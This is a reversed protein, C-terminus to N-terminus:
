LFRFIKLVFPAKQIFYSVNKKTKLPSDTPSFFFFCFFFSLFYRVCAKLKAKQYNKHFIDNDCARNAKYYEM